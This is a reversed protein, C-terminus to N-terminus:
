LLARRWQGGDDPLCAAAAAGPCRGSCLEAETAAHRTGLQPSARLLQRGEESLPMAAALGLCCRRCRGASLGAPRPQHECVLAWSFDWPQEEKCGRAGFCRMEPGDGAGLASAPCGPWPHLQRKGQSLCLTETSFTPHCQLCSKCSRQRTALLRKVLVGVCSMQKNLYLM